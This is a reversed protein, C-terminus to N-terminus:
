IRSLLRSQRPAAWRAEGQEAAWRNNRRPSPRETCTFSQGVGGQEVAVRKEASPCPRPQEPLQSGNRVPNVEESVNLKSVDGSKWLLNSTAGLLPTQPLLSPAPWRCDGRPSLFEQLPKLSPSSDLLFTVLAISLTGRAVMKSCFKVGNGFKLYTWKAISLYSNCKYPELYLDLPM